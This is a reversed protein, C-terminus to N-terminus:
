MVMKERRNHSLMYNQESSPSFLHLSFIIQRKGSFAFNYWLSSARWMTFINKRFQTLKLVINSYHLLM